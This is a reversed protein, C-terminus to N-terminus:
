NKEAPLLREGFIATGLRVMNAGRSICLAYDGSMGMSLYEVDPSVAKAQEYLRRMEDCLPVLVAENDTHPLMAMFGKVRVGEMGTLRMFADMGGLLPYGSKSEEAGINIQILIDTTLGAKKSLRAIEEALGDSDVSHILVTKGILYKVKNRQLHGIFHWRAGAVRGFKECFEQVKNEGVDTVGAGVAWSIEELTRTKTAAVLTVKEGFPNGKALKALLEKLDNAM